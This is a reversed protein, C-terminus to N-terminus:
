LSHAHLLLVPKWQVSILYHYQSSIKSLFTQRVQVSFLSFLTMLLLLSAQHHFSWPIQPFNIYTDLYKLICCLWPFPSSPSSKSLIYSFFLILWSFYVWHYSYYPVLYMPQKKSLIHGLYWSISLFRVQHSLWPFTMVTFLSSCRLLSKSLICPFLPNMAHLISTFPPFFLSSHYNLCWMSSKLTAALILLVTGLSFEM